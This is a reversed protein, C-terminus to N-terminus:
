AICSVTAHEPDFLVTVDVGIVEAIREATEPKCSTKKGSALQSIFAQSVDARRALSRQTIKRPDIPSGNRYADMDEKTYIFTRLRQASSLRMYTGEQWKRKTRFPSM